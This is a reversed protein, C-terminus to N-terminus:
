PAAAARLSRGAQLNVVQFDHEQMVGERGHSSCTLRCVLSCSLSCLRESHANHMCPHVWSQAVTRACHQTRMTHECFYPVPQPVKATCRSATAAAGVGAPRQGLRERGLVCGRRAAADPCTLGTHECLSAPMPRVATLLNRLLVSLTAPLPRQLGLGLLSRFPGQCQLCHNQCPRLTTAGTALVELCGEFCEVLSIDFTGGGLDFVLILSDETRSRGLGYALSAAVPEAVGM